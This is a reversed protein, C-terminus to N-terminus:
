AGAIKTEPSVTYKWSSVFLRKQFSYICKRIIEGLSPVGRCVLMYSARCYKPENFLLRFINNYAVKLKRMIESSYNFWLHPTYLSACYSNFLQIKTPESCHFFKRFLMNGQIYLKKTQRVIDSNDKRDACIFHGLYKVESVTPIAENNLYVDCNSEHKLLDCKFAMTASKLSNFKICHTSGYLECHKLLTQLGSKTPSLLVLDDAYMLNNVRMAGIYCGIVLNNLEVSLDNM